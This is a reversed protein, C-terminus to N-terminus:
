AIKQRSAQNVLAKKRQHLQPRSDKAPGIPPPYLRLELAEDTLGEPLPWTLGPRQARGICDRAATASVGLSAAIKRKSMGAASLRRVGTIFGVCADRTHRAGFLLWYWARANRKALADRSAPFPISRRRVGALVGGPPSQVAQSVFCDVAFRDPGVNGAFLSNLLSIKRIRGRPSAGADFFGSFDFAQPRSGASVSCPIQPRTDPFSNQYSRFKSRMPLV